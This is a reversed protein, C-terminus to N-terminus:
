PSCLGLELARVAASIRTTVGLKRYIRGLSNRVTGTRLHLEAGIQQNTRGTVLLRLLQAQRKTFRISGERATTPAPPAAFQAQLLREVLSELRAEQELLLRYPDTPPDDDGRDTMRGM